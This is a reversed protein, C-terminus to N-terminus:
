SVALITDSDPNLQKDVNKLRVEVEQANNQAHLKKLANETETTGGWINPAVFNLDLEAIRGKYRDVATWFEQESTIANVSIAWDANTNNHNIHDALSRFVNLPQGVIRVAQM